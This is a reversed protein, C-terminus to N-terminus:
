LSPGTFKSLPVSGRDGDDFVMHVTGDHIVYCGEVPQGSFDPRAKVVPRYWYVVRKLGAVNCDGTVKVQPAEDYLIVRDRGGGDPHEGLDWVHLEKALAAGVLLLLFALLLGILSFLLPRRFELPPLDSSPSPHTM